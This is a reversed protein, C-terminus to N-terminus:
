CCQKCRFVAKQLSPTRQPYFINSEEDLMLQHYRLRLDIKSFITAGNLGNILEDTTSMPHRTRKIATNPQRLDVCIRIEDTNEKPAFLLPSVWTTPGTVKEVIDEEELRDLEAEVKKCIHFPICRQRLLSLLKTLM